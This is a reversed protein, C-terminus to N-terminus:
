KFWTEGGVGTAYGHEFNNKISISESTDKKKKPLNAPVKREKQNTILLILFAGFRKINIEM